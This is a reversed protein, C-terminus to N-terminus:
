WPGVEGGGCDDAHDQRTGLPCVPRATREGSRRRQGVRLVPAFADRHFQEVTTHEGEHPIPEGALPSGIAGGGEEGPRWPTTCGRSRTSALRPLPSSVGSFPLSTPPRPGLPV